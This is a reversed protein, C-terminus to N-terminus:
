GPMVWGGDVQLIQGTTYGGGASALYVVTQAIEEPQGLRRLPTHGIAEDLHGAPINWDAEWDAEIMGPSVANVRVHPALDRALAATFGRVAGKAACFSVSVSSVLNEPNSGNGYSGAFNIISAVPSRLLHPLAAQCALLLGRVDVAFLDDWAAATTQAFRVADAADIRGFANVLVDLGGLRDAAADIFGGASRADTVDAAGAFATGGGATIEDAVAAAAGASSRYGVAVAAGERGCARAAAAGLVGGGGLVAVRYGDLRGRPGGAPGAPGATGATGPGTM